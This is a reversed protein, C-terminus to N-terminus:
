RFNFLGRLRYILLIGIVGLLLYIAINGYYLYGFFTSFMAAILSFQILGSKNGQRSKDRFAHSINARYNNNKDGSIEQEIRATRRAIDEKIPDYYRPEFHFRRHAPTRFLSPFKM